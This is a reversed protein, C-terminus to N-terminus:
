INLFNVLDDILSNIRSNYSEEDWKEYQSLSNNIKLKSNNSYIEKKISWSSNTLKKNAEPTVLTLNGLTHRIKSYFDVAAEKNPFYDYYEKETEQSPSIPFIHEVEYNNLLENLSTEFDTSYGEIAALMIKARTKSTQYINSTKIMDRLKDKNFAFIQVDDEKRKKMWDWFSIDENNQFTEKKYKSHLTAPGRTLNKQDKGNLSTHMALRAVNNIENIVKKDDICNFKNKDNEDQIFLDMVLTHILPYYTHWSDEIIKNYIIQKNSEKESKVLKYIHSTITAYKILIQVFEETENFNEFDFSRNFINKHEEINKDNNIAKKFGYFIDLGTKSYLTHESHFVSIMHRYWHSLDSYLPKGSSLKLEKIESEVYNIYSKSLLTMEEHAFFFIYSKILDSSKLKKGTTNVTEFIKSPQDKEAFIKILAVLSHSFAKIVDKEFFNILEEFDNINLVKIKNLIYNTISVFNCYINSAKWKENREISIKESEDWFCLKKLLDDNEISALKIESKGKHKESTVKEVNEILDDYRDKLTLDINKTCYYKNKLIKRIAAFIIITSTIRQQGDVVMLIDSEDKCGDYVIINGIYYKADERGYSKDKHRQLNEYIDEFFKKVDKENWDYNRQYIPIKFGKENAILEYLNETELRAM